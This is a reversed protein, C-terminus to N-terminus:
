DEEKTALLANYNSRQLTLMDLSSEVENLVHQVEFPNATNLKLFDKVRDRFHILAFQASLFLSNLNEPSDWEILVKAPSNLVLKHEKRLATLEGLFDFLEFIPDTPKTPPM